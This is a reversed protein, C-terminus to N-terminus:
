LKPKSLHDWPWTTSGHTGVVNNRELILSGCGPVPIRNKIFHRAMCVFMCVYMCANM